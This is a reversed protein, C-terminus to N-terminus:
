GKKKRGAIHRSLELGFEEALKERIGGGRILM